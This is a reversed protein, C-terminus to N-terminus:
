IDLYSYLFLCSWMEVRERVKMKANGGSKQFSSDYPLDTFALELLKNRLFIGLENQEPMSADATLTKTVLVPDLILGDTIAKVNARQQDAGLDL